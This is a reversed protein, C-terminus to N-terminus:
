GVCISAIPSVFNVPNILTPVLRDTDTGDGLQGGENNGWGYLDGTNTVVFSHSLGVAIDVIPDDNFSASDIRFPVFSYSSYTDPGLQGNSNDGASYVNGLNTLAMTHSSSSKILEIQEVVEDSNALVSESAGMVSLPLLFLSLAISTFSFLLVKISKM